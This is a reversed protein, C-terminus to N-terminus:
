IGYRLKNDQYNERLRFAKSCEICGTAMPTVIENRDKSSVKIDHVHPLELEGELMRAMDRLNDNWPHTSPQRAKLCKKCIWRTNSPSICPDPHSWTYDCSYCTHYHHVM